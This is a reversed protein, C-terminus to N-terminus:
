VPNAERNRRFHDFADYVGGHIFSCKYARPKTQFTLRHGKVDSFGLAQIAREANDDRFNIVIAWRVTGIKPAAVKDQANIPAFDEVLAAQLKQSSGLRRAFVNGETHKSAADAKEQSRSAVATVGAGETANIAPITTRAIKAAGLVGFRIDSM